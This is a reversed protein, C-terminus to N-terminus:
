HISNSVICKYLGFIHSGDKAGEEHDCKLMLETLEIELNDEM